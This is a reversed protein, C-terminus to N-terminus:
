GVARPSASLGARIPSFDCHGGFGAYIVGNLLLLGPRQFENRPTFPETPDNSANGSILVPFGPREAATSVDLAHAYWAVAGSSGSLYTRSFLYM